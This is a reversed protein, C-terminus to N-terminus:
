VFGKQDLFLFFVGLPSLPSSIEAFVFLLLLGIDLSPSHKETTAIIPETICSTKTHPHPHTKNQPKANECSYDKGTSFLFLQLISTLPFNSNEKYFKVGQIQHLIDMFCSTVVKMMIKMLLM